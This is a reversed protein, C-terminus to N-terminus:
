GEHKDDVTINAYITYKTAYGFGYYTEPFDLNGERKLDFCFERRLAGTTKHNTLLQQKYEFFNLRGMRNLPPIEEIARKSHNPIFMGLAKIDLNNM